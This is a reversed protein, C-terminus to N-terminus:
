SLNEKREENDFQSDTITSGKRTWSAWYSGRLRSRSANRILVANHTDSHALTRALFTVGLPAAVHHVMRVTKQRRIVLLAIQPRFRRVRDIISLAFANRHSQKDLYQCFLRNIM